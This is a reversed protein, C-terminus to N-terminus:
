NPLNGIRLIANVGKVTHGANLPEINFKVEKPHQEHELRIRSIAKALNDKAEKDTLNIVCSEGGAKFTISAENRTEMTAPTDTNGTKLESM